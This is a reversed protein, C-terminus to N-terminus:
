CHKLYKNVCQSNEHETKNCIGKSKYTGGKGQKNECVEVSLLHHFCAKIRFLHISVIQSRLAKTETSQNWPLMSLQTSSYDTPWEERGLDQKSSSTFHWQSWNLKLKNLCSLGWHKWQSILRQAWHNLWKRTLFFFFFHNECFLHTRYVLIM